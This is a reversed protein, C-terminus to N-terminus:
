ITREVSISRVDMEFELGDIPPQCLHWTIGAHAAGRAVMEVTLADYVDHICYLGAGTTKSWDSAFLQLRRELENLAHAAKKAIGAPDVQGAAVILDQFSGEGESFDVAGALVYSPRATTDEITYSFAYISAASPAHKYPCVNTRAIPNTETIGPYGTSRILSFYHENFAGFTAETFQVPSRLELAALASPPRQAAAIIEAIRQFANELPIPSQFRVRELRFGPLAAVGLSYSLSGNIFRYGGAPFDIIDKM